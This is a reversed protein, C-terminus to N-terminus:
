GHPERRGFSELHSTFVRENAGARVHTCMIKKQKTVYAGEEGQPAQEQVYTRELERLWGTVYTRIGIKESGYAYPGHNLLHISSHVSNNQEQMSSVSSAHLKPSCSLM